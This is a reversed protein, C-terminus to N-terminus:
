HKTYAIVLVTGLFDINEQKGEGGDVAIRNIM